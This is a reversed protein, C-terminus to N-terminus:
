LLRVNAAGHADGLRALDAGLADVSAVIFEVRRDARPLEDLIARDYVFACWGQRAARLAHYLAAHDAVRLDRRFWVLARDLAKEMAPLTGFPWVARRVARLPSPVSYFPAMDLEDILRVFWNRMAM